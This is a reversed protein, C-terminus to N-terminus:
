IRAIRTVEFDIEIKRVKKIERHINKARANIERLLKDIDRQHEKTRETPKIPGNFLDKRQAFQLSTECILLSKLCSSVSDFIEPLEADETPRHLSECDFPASHIKMLGHMIRDRQYPFVVGLEQLRENTM